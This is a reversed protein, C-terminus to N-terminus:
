RYRGFSIAPPMSWRTRRDGAACPIFAWAIGALIMLGSGVVSPAKLGPSVLYVLGALALGLGTWELRHPREGARLAALIMTVQVSGFLLLTGAGASLSLYALSFAIAYLFLLGASLWNGRGRAQRGNRSLITIFGLMLAGSVLRTATYSVADITAQGLALRNLVSNSAFATMALITFGATLLQGRPLGM